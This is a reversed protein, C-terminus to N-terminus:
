DARPHNEVHHTPLARNHPGAPTGRSSCAEEIFWQRDRALNSLPWKMRHRWYKTRSRSRSETTRPPPTFAAWAKIHEGAGSPPQPLSPSSIGLCVCDVWPRLHKNASPYQWTHQTDLKTPAKLLGAPQIIPMLSQFDLDPLCLNSLLLWAANKICFGCCWRVPASTTRWLNCKDRERLM